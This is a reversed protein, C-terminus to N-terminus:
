DGAQKGETTIVFRKVPPSLDIKGSGFSNPLIGELGGSETPRVTKRPVNGVRALRLRRQASCEGRSDIPPM